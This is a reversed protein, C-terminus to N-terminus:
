EFNSTKNLKKSQTLEIPDLKTFVKKKANKINDATKNIQDSLIKNRQGLLSHHHPDNQM